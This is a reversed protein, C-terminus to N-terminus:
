SIIVDQRSCTYNNWLSTPVSHYYNVIMRDLENIHYTILPLENKIVLTHYYNGIMRDRLNIHCTIQPLENKIAPTIILGQKSHEM